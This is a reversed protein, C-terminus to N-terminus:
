SGTIETPVCGDWFYVHKVKGLELAVESFYSRSMVAASAYSIVMQAAHTLATGSLTQIVDYTRDTHVVAEDDMFVIKEIWRRNSTVIPLLIDKSVDAALFWKTDNQLNAQKEAISACNLFIELAEVSHRAPDNWKQPSGNGVRFHIALFPPGNLTLTQNKIEANEAFLGTWVGALVQCIHITPRFLYAHIEAALHPVKQLSKALQGIRGEKRSFFDLLTRTNRSNISIGVVREESEWLSLSDFFERRKDIFDLHRGILADGFRWDIEGVTYIRSLPYPTDSDILLMRQTFVALLFAAFIGNFRDGNGGCGHLPNCRYILTLPPTSSKLLSAKYQAHLLTYEKLLDSFTLSRDRDIPRASITWEDDTVIQSIRLRTLGFKQLCGELSSERSGSSHRRWCTKQREDGSIEQQIKPLYIPALSIEWPELESEEMWLVVSNFNGPGYETFLNDVREPPTRNSLVIIKLDSKDFQNTHAHDDSFNGHRIINAPVVPEFVKIALPNLDISKEAFRLLNQSALKSAARVVGHTISDTWRLLTEQAVLPASPFLTLSRIPNPIGNAISEWGNRVREWGLIEHATVNQSIHEASNVLLGYLPGEIWARSTTVLENTGHYQSAIELVNLRGELLVHVERMFDERSTVSYKLLSLLFIFRM